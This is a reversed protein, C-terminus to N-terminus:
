LNIEFSSKDFAERWSSQNARGLQRDEHTSAFNIEWQDYKVRMSM